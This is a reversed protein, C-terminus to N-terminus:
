KLYRIIVIGSGGNGGTGFGSTGTVAGGAGGGTNMAGNSGNTTGSGNANGGGAGGVGSGGTGGTNKGAGGGGGAYYVSSGNISNAVGAGGAGGATGSGDAGVGGAGGGGGTAAENGNYDYTTGKGGDFGQNTTGSGGATASNGNTQGGGSGGSPAAGAVNFAKGGGGGTPSITTIGTGSISSSTGNIPQSNYGTTGSSGGGVSITYNTGSTLSLATEGTPTTNGGGSPSVSSRLGGAGGGGGLAWVGASGAGGGGGAVVLYDATLNQTPTFTGTSFFSHIWHTSTETIVGGTAYAGYGASTIGYLTATSYQAFNGSNCTFAIKTIPATQSWLKADFYLNSVTGNNEAVSDVSFSKNTSGAYNPFYIGVNSFTSATTNGGNYAGSPTTDTGSSITGNTNTFLFRGSFDASSDNIAILMNNSNDVNTNRASIVLSLDTYTAPISTFEINAAGGSGVTVTQIAKMNPNTAM